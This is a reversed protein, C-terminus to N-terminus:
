LKKQGNQKKKRDVYINLWDNDVLLAWTLKTFLSHRDEEDINCDSMKAENTVIWEIEHLCEHWLTQWRMQLPIEKLILIERNAFWFGLYYGGTKRKMTQRSVESVPIDFGAIRVSKPLAKFKKM